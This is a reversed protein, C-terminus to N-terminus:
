FAHDVRSDVVLDMILLYLFLCITCLDRRRSHLILFSLLMTCSSGRRWGTSLLIRFLRKCRLTTDRVRRSEVYLSANNNHVRVRRTMAARIVTMTDRVRRSEALLNTTADHTTTTSECTSDDRRTNSNMADRVLRFELADLVIWREPILFKMATM